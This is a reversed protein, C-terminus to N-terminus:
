TGHGGLAVNLSPQVRCLLLQSYKIEAGGGGRELSVSYEVFEGQAQGAALGASEHNMM